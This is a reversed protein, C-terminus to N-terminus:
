EALLSDVAAKFNEYPYAGSITAYKGTKQNFLVVGPTGSLGFSKAENTQTAFKVLTEKKDLCSQWANIDTIGAAKAAEPLSSVPFIAGSPDKPRHLTKDMVYTYFKTYADAGGIKEACLLGLAKAETGEHDVGRNNKYVFAVKDGYEQTLTQHLKTDHYLQACFPCEMESYEVVVVNADKKGEIVAGTLLTAKQSDTLTETTTAPAETTGNTASGTATGRFQALFAKQKEINQESQPNTLLEKQVETIVDYNDKGGVKEYEHQLLAERVAREIGTTNEVPTAKTAISKSFNPTIGFLFAIQIASFIVLVILLITQFLERSTTRPSESRYEKESYNEAM